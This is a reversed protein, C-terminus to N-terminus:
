ANKTKLARARLVMRENNTAMGRRLLHFICAGNAVFLTELGHDYHEFAASLPTHGQSDERNLLEISRDIERTKRIIKKAIPTSGLHAAYTLATRGTRPDIATAVFDPTAATIERLLADKRGERNDPNSDEFLRMAGFLGTNGGVGAGHLSKGVAVILAVSLFASLLKKKM